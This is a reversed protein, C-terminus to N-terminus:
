NLLFAAYEVSWFASSLLLAAPPHLLLILTLRCFYQQRTIIPRGSIRASCDFCYETYVTLVAHLVSLIAHSNLMLM